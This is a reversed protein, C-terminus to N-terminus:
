DTADEVVLRYTQTTEHGELDKVVIEIQFKGSPVELNEVVLTTGAIYPALKDTLSKSFLGKKAKIDLSSMDVPAQNHEFVVLMSTPSNTEITDAGDIRKIEPNRITIVPGLSASRARPIPDWENEQIQLERAEQETFLELREQAAM